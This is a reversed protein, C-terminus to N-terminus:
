IVKLLLICIMMLFTDTEYLNLKYPDWKCFFNICSNLDNVKEIECLITKSTIKLAFNLSELMKTNDDVKCLFSGIGRRFEHEFYDDPVDSSFTRNWIDYYFKMYRNKLDRNIDSKGSYFGLVTRLWGAPSENFDIKKRYLSVVGGAIEYTEYGIRRQSMKRYTIIHLINGDIVRVYVPIKTKKLKVFGM